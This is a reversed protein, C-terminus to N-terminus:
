EEGQEPVEISVTALKEAIGGLLGDVGAMYDRRSGNAEERFIRETQMQLNRAVATYYRTLGILEEIGVGNFRDQDERIWEHFVEAILEMAEEAQGNDYLKLFEKIREKMKM